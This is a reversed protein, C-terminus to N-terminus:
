AAQMERPLDLTAVVGGSPKNELTLRARDGYLAKLRDRVNALGVSASKEEGVLGLGTDSVEILIREPSAKASICLQGGNIKPELGHKIANEVLPQVLLPPLAHRGIEAPPAIDFVLRQGMRMQMISLYHRLLDFEDAVTGTGKRTRLLTARLYDNMHDLMLKAMKPDIDILTRVNALSNFLFHPEIQAQLMKLQATLLQQRNETNQLQERRFATEMVRARISAYFLMSVTVWITVNILTLWFNTAVSFVNDFIQTGLLSGIVASVAASGVFLWRLKNLTPQFFRLGMLGLLYALSGTLNSIVLHRQWDSFVITSIAAILTASFWTLGLDRAIERWGYHIHPAIFMSKNKM